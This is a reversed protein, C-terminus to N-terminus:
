DAVGFRREHLVRRPFARRTREQVIITTEAFERPTRSVVRWGGPFPWFRWMRTAVVHEDTWPLNLERAKRGAIQAVEDATMRM